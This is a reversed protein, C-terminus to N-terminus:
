QKSFSFTALYQTKSDEPDIYYDRYKLESKDFWGKVNKHLTYSFTIIRDSYTWTFPHTKQTTLNLEEGTNDANFTLQIVETFLGDDTNDLKISTSKYTGVIQETTVADGKLPEKTPEKIDDDSSCSALFPLVLLLLFLKKM